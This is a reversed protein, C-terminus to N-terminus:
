GKLSGTFQVIPRTQRTGPEDGVHCNKHSVVVLQSFIIGPEAIDQLLHVHFRVYFAKLKCKYTKPTCRRSQAFGEITAPRGLLVLNVLKIAKPGSVGDIRM